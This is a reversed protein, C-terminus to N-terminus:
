SNSLPLILWLRFGLLLHKNKCYVANFDVGVQLRTPIYSIIIVLISNILENTNNKGLGTFDHDTM